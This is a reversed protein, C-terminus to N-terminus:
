SEATVEGDGIDNHSVALLPANKLAEIQAVSILKSRKDFINEYATLKGERILSTIKGRSVNGLLSRAQEITVYRDKDDM